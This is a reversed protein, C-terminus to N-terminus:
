KNIYCTILRPFDEGRKIIWVTIVEAQRDLNSIILPVIYRDGYDDSVGDIAKNWAIQALIQSKLSEANSQNIDLISQFVRAKNKGRPHQMNLCYDRLKEIDVIASQYNPLLGM